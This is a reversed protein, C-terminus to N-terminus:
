FPFRDSGVDCGILSLVVSKVLHILINPSTTKSIKYVVMRAPMFIEDLLQAFLMCVSRQNSPEFASSIEFKMLTHMLIARKAGVFSTHRYYHLTKLIISSVSCVPPCLAYAPPAFIRM